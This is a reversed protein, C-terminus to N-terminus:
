KNLVLIQCMILLTITHTLAVKLEATLTSALFSCCGSLIENAENGPTTVTGRITERITFLDETSM